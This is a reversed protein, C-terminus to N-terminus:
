ACGQVCAVAGGPGKAGGGGGSVVASRTRGTKRGGGTEDELGGRGQVVSSSFVGDGISGPVQTAFFFILSNVAAAADSGKLCSHQLLCNCFFFRKARTRNPLV